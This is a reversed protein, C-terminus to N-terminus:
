QADISVEEPVFSEAERSRAKKEGDSVPIEVTLQQVGPKLVRRLFYQDGYRSFVLKSGHDSQINGNYAATTVRVHKDPSSLEVVGPSNATVTYTNPPLVDNGITFSFPVKAIIGPDQAQVKAVVGFAMLTFLAAVLFRKM